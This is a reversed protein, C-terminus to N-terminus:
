SPTIHILHTIVQLANLVTGSIYYTRDLYKDLLIFENLAPGFITRGVVPLRHAM